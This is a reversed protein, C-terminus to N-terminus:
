GGSGHARAASMAAYGIARHAPEGHAEPHRFNGRDEEAKDSEVVLPHAAAYADHRVGTVQWCVTLDPGGGAITFTNGSLPKSVHLDPAAAGIPTLQYRFRENLAGFWDALVVTAEGTVDLTVEGDYITKMEDSEVASHSLYRNEPDLPHDIKFQVDSKTIVGRVDVNGVFAAAYPSGLAWLGNGGSIGVAVIAHAAPNSVVSLRVDTFTETGVGVHGTVALNGVGPDGWNLAGGVNMSASSMPHPTHVGSPFQGDQNLRLYADGSSIALRGDIGLNGAVDLHHHPESTGIGVLGGTDQLVVKGGGSASRIYWDGTSGWHIHSWNPGLAPKHFAATNWTSDPTPDVVTFTANADGAVHGVNLSGASLKPTRVGLPFANNKNLYLFNQDMTVVLLGGIAIEEPLDLTAAPTATGIGFRGALVTFILRDDEAVRSYLRLGRTGGEDDVGLHFKEADGVTRSSGASDVLSDRFGLAQVTIGVVRRPAVTLATVNGASLDVTALVVEKGDYVFGAAPRLRVLPTEDLQFVGTATYTARDFTEAWAITVLQVGTLGATPLSVGSADAPITTQEDLKAKGGEALCIHRGLTDLAVGPSVRIGPAGVTATVTLGAAVGWDHLEAAHARLVPQLYRELDVRSETNGTKDQRPRGNPEIYSTRTLKEAM